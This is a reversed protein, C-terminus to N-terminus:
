GDPKVGVYMEFSSIMFYGNVIPLFFFYQSVIWGVETSSKKSCLNSLMVAKDTIWCLLEPYEPRQLFSQAIEKINVTIM